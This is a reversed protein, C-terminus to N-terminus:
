KSTPCLRFLVIEKTESQNPQASHVLNHPFIVAKQKEVPSEAFHQVDDKSKFFITEGGNSDGLYILCSHTTTVTTDNIEITTPTDTHINPKQTEFYFRYDFVDAVYFGLKKFAHKVQM